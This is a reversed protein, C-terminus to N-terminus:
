DGMYGCEPSCVTSLGNFATDPIFEEGKYMKAFFGMIGVSDSKGETM